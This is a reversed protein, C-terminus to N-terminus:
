MAPMSGDVPMFHDTVFSAADEFFWIVAEEM